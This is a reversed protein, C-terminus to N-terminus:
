AGDSDTRPMVERNPEGETVQRATELLAEILWRNTYPYCAGTPYIAKFQEPTQSAIERLDSNFDIQMYKQRRDSEVRWAEADHSEEETHPRLEGWSKPWRREIAVFRDVDKVTALIAHLTNEAHLSTSVGLYVCVGGAAAAIALVVLVARVILHRRFM